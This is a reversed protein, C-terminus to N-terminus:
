AGLLTFICMLVLVSFGVALPVTITDLGRHSFLEVVAGVPAALLAVFLSIHWPQQAYLILTSFIVTGAVALMAFTGEYTKKGDLWRHQIPNRGFSKGVLAAAADGLGWALVAVLAVYKWDAGLLGWFVFILTAITVQVIVLSRKFEGSEREVAIRRFFTTDEIRALILYVVVMLLLAVFVAVAWSSFLRLMPIISFTIVLHYSKRAIELPLRDVAKLFLLPVGVVVFYAILLGFGILDDQLM